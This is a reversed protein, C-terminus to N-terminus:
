INKKKHEQNQQPRVLQTSLHNDMKARSFYEEGWCVLVCAGVSMLLEAELIGVETLNPWDKTNGVTFLKGESSQFPDSCLQIKTNKLVHM